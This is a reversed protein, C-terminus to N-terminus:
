CPMMMIVFGVTTHRSSSFLTNKKEIYVQLPSAGIFPTWQMPVEPGLPRGPLLAPMTKQPCPVIQLIQNLFCYALNLIQFRFPFFLMKCVVKLKPLLFGLDGLGERASAWYSGGLMGPTLGPGQSGRRPARPRPKPLAWGTRSVCARSRPSALACAKGASGAIGPAAEVNQM